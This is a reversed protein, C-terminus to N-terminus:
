EGSLTHPSSLVRQPSSILNEAAIALAISLWLLTAVEADGFLWDFMGNVLFGLLGALAGSILALALPNKARRTKQLARVEFLILKTIFWLFAVLGPAGFCMLIMVFNNHFHGIKYEDASLDAGPSAYSKHIEGLDIWGFGLIPRDKFMEVSDRWQHLRVQTTPKNLDFISFARKQVSRPVLFFGIVMVILSVPILRRDKVLVLLFGAALLGLYSGRVYSFLIGIVIPIVALFYLIRRIGRAQFLLVALAFAFFFVSMAGWTMTTSQTAMSKDTLHFLYFGIGILSFLTAVAVFLDVALQGRKQTVLFNGVVYLIPILLLHKLHIFSELPRPSFITALLAIGIFLALPIEIGIPKVRWEGTKVGKALWLLYILGLSVQSGAITFVSSAIFVLILIFMARELLHNFHSITKM